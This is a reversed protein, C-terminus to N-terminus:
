NLNGYAWHIAIYHCLRRFRDSTMPIKEMEAKLEEPTMQKFSEWDKDINHPDKIRSKIKAIINKLM